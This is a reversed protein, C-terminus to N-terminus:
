NEAGELLYPIAKEIERDWYGWSHNGPSQTSYLPYEMLSLHATCRVHSRILRDETGCWLYVRPLPKGQQKAESALFFVDNKSGRLASIDGFLNSWYADPLPLLKPAETIDAVGSLSAVGAYREPYTLAVKLAGYGGMSLGAVFTTERHTSVGRFLGRCLYPLEETVFTFYKEGTATDTYWGREGSPMIVIMNHKAAYREISTHRQWTSHNDSYGHLLYLTPYEKEETSNERGQWLSQPLLVNVDVQRGISSSYLSLKTLIM